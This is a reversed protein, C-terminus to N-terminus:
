VNHQRHGDVVLGNLEVIRSALTSALSVILPPNVKILEVFAENDVVQVTCPRTAIVSAVRRQNLLFGIEGFFESPRIEGVTVERHRVEAHGDILVFVETSADAERVIFQDTEFRRLNVDPQREVQLQLACLEYMIAQDAEQYALWGALLSADVRLAERLADPTYLTIEAAFDCIIKADGATFRPGVPIFDGQSYMRLLRGSHYFKFFAVERVYVYALDPWGLLDVDGELTREEGVDALAVSLTHGHEKNAEYQKALSDPIEVTTLM